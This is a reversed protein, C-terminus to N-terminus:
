TERWVIERVVAYPLTITTVHWRFGPPMSSGYQQAREETPFPGFYEASGNPSGVVLLYM